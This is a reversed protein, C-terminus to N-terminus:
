DNKLMDVVKSIKLFSNMQKVTWEPHEGLISPSYFVVWRHIQTAPCEAIIHFSSEEDELCLRCSYPDTIKDQINRHRKLKNHGTIFQTLISLDKRKMELLEKSKDKDPKQFWTKTQRAHKYEHWATAWKDNFIREIDNKVVRAPVQIERNHGEGLTSGKKALFDAVENGPINIHAKVWRIHVNNNEALSNLDNICKEVTRSKVTTKNLALMCAQSDTYFTISKNSWKKRSLM